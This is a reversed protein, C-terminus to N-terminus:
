IIDKVCTYLGHAYGLMDEVDVKMPLYDSPMKEINTTSPTLAVRPNWVEIICICDNEHCWDASKVLYTLPIHESPKVGEHSKGM